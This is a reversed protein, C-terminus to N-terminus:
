EGRWVGDGCASSRSRQESGKGATDKRGGVRPGAGLDRCFLHWSSWVSREGARQGAKVECKGKVIQM